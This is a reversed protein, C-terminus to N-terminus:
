AKQRNSHFQPFMYSDRSFILIMPFLVPPSAAYDSIYRENRYPDELSSM